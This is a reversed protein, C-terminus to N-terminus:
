SRKENFLMSGKRNTLMTDSSLSLVYNNHGSILSEKDGIVEEM